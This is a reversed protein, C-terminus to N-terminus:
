ELIENCQKEIAAYFNQDGFNIKDFQSKFQMDKRGGDKFLEKYKESGKMIQEKDKPNFVKIQQDAEQLTYTFMINGAKRFMGLGNKKGKVFQGQYLDGNVQRQM